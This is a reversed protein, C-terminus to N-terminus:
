KANRVFRTMIAAVQARTASGTPNLTGDEVGSILGAGVAWRMADAAYDAVDSADSFRDLSATASVDYGAAKAYRYLITTMDQRTINDQAGFRDGYGTVVKNEYAWGIAANFWDSASVDGFVTGDGAKAGRAFNYLVQALMARTMAGNPDFSGDGTGNFIERATVFTVYESYWDTAGVDNFAKTNDVIVVEVSGTVPFIVSGEYCERIPTLTGDAAKEMAVVGPGTVSVEIEVRPMDVVRSSDFGTPLTIRISAASVVPVTVPVRIPVGARLAAEIAKASPAAEVSVLNGNKDNKVTTVSGDKATTVATKSGDPNTSTKTTSGDANTVTEATPSPTYNHSRSSSGSASKYTATLTVNRAPMTFTASASTKGGSTFTLGDAGAWKEFQKGSAPAGATITVSDGEKYSGGGTGGTVTVTYTPAAVITYAASAVASDTMGGKVAIAKITTPQTITIPGTYVTSQSTPDGPNEGMAYHIAAGETACSITVAAGSAVAGAAPSFTPTAVQGPPTYAGVTLADSDPSALVTGSAKVRVYYTGSALGTISTSSAAVEAYAGTTKYEYTKASDLGTITGDNNAATTCSTTGLGATPKAAQTVTITQATSDSTTTGNGKKVVSITCASLGTLAIDASSTINTWNTGDLSYKMGSTVGSLTGCDAGTATFAATTPTAERPLAVTLTVTDFASALDNENAGNKRENFVKLTYTGTELGNPLTFSVEGSAASAATLAAGSGYGLATAGTSDCLLVSVYENAGTAAGSYNLTVSGSPAVTAATETVAFSKHQGTTEDTDKLTLKWETTDGTSITEIANAATLTKGSAANSAFLVAGPNLNFAPRAEPVIEDADVYSFTGGTHVYAAKNHSADADDSKYAASRLWWHKATGAADTAKQNNKRKTDNSNYFYEDAERMSLFFFHANDGTGECRAYWGNTFADVATFDQADPITTAKIAKKEADNPWNSYLNDCWIKADSNIWSCDVGASDSDYPIGGQTHKSLLLVEDASSSNGYSGAGLASLVRWLIPADDKTGFWVTDDKEVGGMGLSLVPEASTARANLAAWPMLGVLMALTLLLSAAKNRIHM